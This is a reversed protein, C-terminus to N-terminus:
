RPRELTLVARAIVAVLNTSCRARRSIRWSKLRAVGRAVPARAASRARNATRGTPTPEDGSPRRKATTVRGGAGACATDALAPVGQRECIRIIKPTRAARLDHTRGPLTPPLWLFEGAPDTLPQVNVGHRRHKYTVM